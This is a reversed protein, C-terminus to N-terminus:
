ATTEGLYGIKMAFLSEAELRESNTLEAAALLGFWNRILQGYSSIYHNATPEWEARALVLGDSTVVIEAIQPSGLPLDLLHEVIAAMAPTISPFRSPDLKYNLRTRIPVEPRSPMNINVPRGCNLVARFQPDRPLYNKRKHFLSRLSFAKRAFSAFRAFRMIKRSSM